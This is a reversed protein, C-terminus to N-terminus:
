RSQAVAGALAMGTNGTLDAAGPMVGPIYPATADLCAKIAKRTAMPGDDPGFTPLKQEWGPLGHGSQAADWREKDGDWAEFRARWEAAMERGRPICRRYLELVEAPVWFTEDTPIGLIEKTLRAEDDSM